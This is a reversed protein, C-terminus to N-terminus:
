RIEHNLEKIIIEAQFGRRSLYGFLRRRVTFKDLGIYQNKRKNILARVADSEEYQDAAEKLALGILDNDIGKQKLERKIRHPGMPKNLRSRVWGLSFQRDNVLGITKFYELTEDVVPASFSKERLKNRLEAESRPRYKLSRYVAQKADKLEQSGTMPDHMAM